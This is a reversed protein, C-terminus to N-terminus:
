EYEAKKFNNSNFEDIVSQEEKSGLRKHEKYNKEKLFDLIMREKRAGMVEDRRESVTKRFSEVEKEGNEIDEKLYNLHTSFVAMDSPTLEGKELLEKVDELYDNIVSNLENEKINLNEKASALNKKLLDEMGKRFDLISELKFKFAKM